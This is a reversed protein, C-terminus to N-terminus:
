TDKSKDESYETETIQDVRLVILTIEDENGNVFTITNDDVYSTPIIDNTSILTVTDSESIERTCSFLIAFIAIAIIQKFKM